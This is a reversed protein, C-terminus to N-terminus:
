GDFWFAHENQIAVRFQQFDDFQRVMSMGHGNSRIEIRDHLKMRLTQQLDNGDGLYVSTRESRSRHQDVAHKLFRIVDTVSLRNM